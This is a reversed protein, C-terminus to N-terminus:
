MSVRRCFIIEAADRIGNAEVAVEDGDPVAVAVVLLANVPDAVDDELFDAGLNLGSFPSVVVFAVRFM